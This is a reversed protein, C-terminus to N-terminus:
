FTVSKKNKIPYVDVIGKLFVGLGLENAGGVTVSDAEAGRDLQLVAREPNNQDEIIKLIRYWVVNDPDFIFGGERLHPEPEGSWDITVESVGIQFGPEVLPYASEAVPDTATTLPEANEIERKFFVVVDITAIDTNVLVTVPPVADPDVTEEVLTTPQRRVTLMWSYHLQQVELRATAPNFGAPLPETWTITNPAATTITQVTRAHSFKRTVDFLIVRYVLGNTSTSADYDAAAPEGTAAHSEAMEVSTATPNTVIEDLLTDWSDPLTVIGPAAAAAIPVGQVLSGPFRYLTNPSPAPLTEINAFFDASPATLGSLVAHGWPDVIYNRNMALGTATPDTPDTFTATNGDGDPDMVLWPFSDILEEVNYRHLTAATLQTAQITRLISLPFMVALSTIGISLVLLAMLVEVLTSGGRAAPMPASQNKHLKM